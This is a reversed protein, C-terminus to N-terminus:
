PNLAKHIIDDTEQEAKRQQEEKERFVEMLTPPPPKEFVSFELNLADCLGVYKRLGIEPITGQEIRSLTARSMGRKKALAAQTLGAKRRAARIIAGAEAYNMIYRILYM